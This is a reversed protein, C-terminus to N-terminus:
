KIFLQRALEKFEEAYIKTQQHVVPEFEPFRNMIYVIAEEASTKDTYDAIETKDQESLFSDGLFEVSRALIIQAMEGALREADTETITAGADKAATIALAKLDITKEFLSM